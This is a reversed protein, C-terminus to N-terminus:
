KYLYIADFFIDSTMLNTCDLQADVCFIKLFAAPFFLSVKLPYTKRLYAIAPILETKLLTGYSSELWFILDESSHTSFSM